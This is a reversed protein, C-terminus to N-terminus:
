GFRPQVRSNGYKGAYTKRSEQFLGMEAFISLPLAASPAQLRANALDLKVAPRRSDYSTTGM